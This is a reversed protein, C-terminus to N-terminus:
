SFLMRLGENMINIAANEDRNIVAGCSCTWVRDSLKLESNVTGSFLIKGIFLVNLILANAM